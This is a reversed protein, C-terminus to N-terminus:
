SPTLIHVEDGDSRCTSNSEGKATTLKIGMGPALNIGFLELSVASGKLIEIHGDENYKLDKTVERLKMAMIRPNM